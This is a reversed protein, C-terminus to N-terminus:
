RLTAGTLPTDQTSQMNQLLVKHYELANHYAMDLLNTVVISICYMKVVLWPVLSNYM